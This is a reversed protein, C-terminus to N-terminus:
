SLINISLYFMKFTVQNSNVKNPLVGFHIKVYGEKLIYTCHTIRYLKKCINNIKFVEIETKPLFLLVKFLVINFGDTCKNPSLAAQIAYM